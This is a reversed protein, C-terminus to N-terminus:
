APGTQAGTIAVVRAIDDTTAGRSLDNVPKALGSLIPGYARAGALRQVLKYAINGSDLDPFVLVNATGGLVSDPAKRRAVDPALAADGQLEGDILLGPARERALRTAEVMKDVRPHAASGRTSFSLFAVRPQFGPILREGAAAASIGIDALQEATPDPIVGCDAFVLVGNHGFPSGEPLEMLFFSSVTQIGPATGVLKIAARLVDATPAIAGAVLGDAAGIGVLGAGYLLPTSLVMARIHDRTLGEKSRRSAYLDVVKELRPDDVPYVVDVGKISIRLAEAATAFDERRGLIVPRAWGREAAIVAARFSREDSEAEPLVIRARRRSAAAGIQDILTEAM